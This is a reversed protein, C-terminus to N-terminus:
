FSSLSIGDRQAMYELVSRLTNTVVRRYQNSSAMMVTPTFGLSKYRLPDDEKVFLGYRYVFGKLMPHSMVMPFSFVKNSKIINTQMRGFELPPDPKDFENELYFRLSKVLIEYLDKNESLSISDAWYFYETAKIQGNFLNAIQDYPVNHLYKRNNSKFDTVRAMIVLEHNLDPTLKFYKTYDIYIVAQNSERIDNSGDVKWDWYSPIKNILYLFPEVQALAKIAPMERYGPYLGQDLVSEAVQKELMNDLLIVRIGRKTWTEILNASPLGRQDLDRGCSALPNILVLTPSEKTVIQLESSM